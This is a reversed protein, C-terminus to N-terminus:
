RGKWEPLESEDENDDAIKDTEYEQAILWRSDSCDAIKMLKYSIIERRIGAM